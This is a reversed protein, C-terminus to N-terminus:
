LSLSFLTLLTVNVIGYQVQIYTKFETFFIVSSLLAVTFIMMPAAVFEALLM